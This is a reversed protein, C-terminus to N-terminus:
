WPVACCDPLRGADLSNLVSNLQKVFHLPQVVALVVHLLLAVAAVACRFQQGSQLPPSSVGSM